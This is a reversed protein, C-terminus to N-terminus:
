RFYFDHFRNSFNEHNGLPRGKEIERLSEAPSTMRQGSMRTQREGLMLFRKGGDSVNQFMRPNGGRELIAHIEASDPFKIQDERHTSVSCEELGRM